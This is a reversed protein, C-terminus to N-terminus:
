LESEKFKWVMPILLLIMLGALFSTVFGLWDPLSTVLFLHLLREVGVMMGMILIAFLLWHQFRIPAGCAPCDFRGFKDWGILIAFPGIRNGCSPCSGVAEKVKMKSIDVKEEKKKKLKKYITPVFMLLVFFGLAAFFQVSIINELSSGLLANIFGGPAMGIVSGLAFDRFKIKSLGLGFNLADYQFLPILRMFLVMRFGNKEIGEDFMKLRGKKMLGMREIFSRGLYRVLLFSICSGATAGILIFLTGWWKGFALGGALSMIGVPLIFVVARMAYIVIFVVPALVGFGNIFEKVKEPTFDSIALPTFRFLAVLGVIIVVPILLKVWGAKKNGPKQAM